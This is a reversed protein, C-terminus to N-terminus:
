KDPNTDTLDGEQAEKAKAALIIQYCKEVAIVWDAFKGPTNNVTEQLVGFIQASVVTYFKSKKDLLNFADLVSQEFNIIQDATANDPLGELALEAALIKPINKQLLAVVDEALHTKALSDVIQAIWGVAGSDLATKVAETVSVAVVVADHKIHNFLRDFFGGKGFIGSLFSM